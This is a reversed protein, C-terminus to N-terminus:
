KKRVITRPQKISFNTTAEIVSGDNFSSLYLDGVRPTRFDVKVYGAPCSPTDGYIDNEEITMTYAYKM